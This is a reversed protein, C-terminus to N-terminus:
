GLLNGKGKEKPEEASRTKSIDDVEKKEQIIRNPRKLVDKYKGHLKIFWKQSIM